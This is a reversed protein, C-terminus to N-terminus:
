ALAGSSRGRPGGDLPLRILFTTGVGMETEFTLDGGHKEIVSRAIALGQGTGKGVPKTTFFPDYIRNRIEAPIGGGTDSISIFASDREEWSRVQIRGLKETGQVVDGIAHAANVVLNLIVQNVDGGHCKVPSVDGLETEVSAVYKYENRAINLTSTIAQNLDIAAMDKQDPHAFEKLSRVITAVRNLGELARDLAPPLNELLYGVEIASEQDTADAAERECPAGAVVARLVAQYKLILGTLDTAADRIFHVSDNVFQIPTNIEHAVGAALRGVSELKQAQRLDVEMKRLMTVDRFNILSIGSGDAALGVHYVEAEVLEGNRRCLKLDGMFMQDDDPVVKRLSPRLTEYSQPDFLHALARDPVQAISDLGLCDLASRNAYVLKEDRQIMIGAACQDAVARFSVPDDTPRLDLPADPM